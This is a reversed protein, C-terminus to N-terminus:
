GLPVVRDAAWEEGERHSVVVVTLGPHLSRLRRVGDVVATATAADLASTPEDLVLIDAGTLV